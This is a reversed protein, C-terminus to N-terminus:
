KENKLDNIDKPTFCLNLLNYITERIKLYNIIDEYYNYFKLTPINIFFHEIIFQVINNKDFKYKIFCKEEIKKNLIKLIIM